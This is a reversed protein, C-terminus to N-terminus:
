MKVNYNRNLKVKIGCKWLVLEQIEMFRFIDKHVEVLLQNSMDLMVVGRQKQVLRERVWAGGERDEWEEAMQRVSVSRSPM